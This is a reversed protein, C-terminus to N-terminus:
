AQRTSIVTLLALVRAHLLARARQPGPQGFTNLAVVAAVLTDPPSHGRFQKHPDAGCLLPDKATHAGCSRLSLLWKRRDAAM